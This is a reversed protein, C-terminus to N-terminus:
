VPGANDSYTGIFLLAYPPNERLGAKRYGIGLSIRLARTRVPRTHKYAGLPRRVPIRIAVTTAIGARSSM